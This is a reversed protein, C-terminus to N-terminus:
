RRGNTDKIIVKKTDIEDGKMTEIIDKLVRDANDINHHKLVSICDQMKESKKKPKRKTKDEAIVAMGKYKVGPQEKEDLFKIIKDDLFQKRKRLKSLEITRIKIENSITKLEDVTSAIDSSM